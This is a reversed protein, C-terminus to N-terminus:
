LEKRKKVLIPKCALILFCFTDKRAGSWIAAVGCNMRKRFPGAQESQDSFATQSNLRLNRLLQSLM